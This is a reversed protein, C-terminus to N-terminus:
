FDSPDVDGAAANFEDSQASAAAANPDAKFGDPDTDFGYGEAGGGYEVLERILVANLRLSVGASPANSNMCFEKPTFNVQILSGNGINIDYKILAGASDFLRPKLSVQTGDPKTYYANSGFKFITYGTAEETERDYEDEWPYHKTLLKRKPPKLTPAGEDFAKDVMPTLQAILAEAAEGNLRLGVKYKAKSPDGNSFRDDPATLFPWLALGVPTTLRVFKKAEAM